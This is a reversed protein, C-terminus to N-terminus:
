EDEERAQRQRVREALQRYVADAILPGGEEVDSSVCPPGSVVVVKEARWRTRLQAGRISAEILRFPGLM